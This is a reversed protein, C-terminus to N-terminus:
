LLVDAAAKREEVEVKQPVWLGEGELREELENGEGLGWSWFAGWALGCAEGPLSVPLRIISRGREQEELDM